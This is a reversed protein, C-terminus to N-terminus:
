EFTMVEFLYDLNNCPEPTELWGGGVVYWEEVQVQQETPYEILYAVRGNLRLQQKVDFDFDALYDTVPRGDQELEHILEETTAQMDVYREKMASILSHTHMSPPIVTKM